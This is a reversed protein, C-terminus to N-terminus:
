FRPIQKKKHSFMKLLGNAPDTFKNSCLFINSSKHILLFNIDCNNMWGQNKNYFFYCKQCSQSTELLKKTFNHVNPIRTNVNLITLFELFFYMQGAILYKWLNLFYVFMCLYLVTYLRRKLFIIQGCLSFLYISFRM